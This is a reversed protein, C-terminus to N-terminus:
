EEWSSWRSEIRKIEDQKLKVLRIIYKEDVDNLRCFEIEADYARTEWEIMKLDDFLYKNGEWGSQFDDIAHTYEHLLASYSSERDLRIQGPRNFLPQYNM